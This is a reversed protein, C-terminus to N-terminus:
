FQTGTAFFSFEGLEKTWGRLHVSSKSQGEKHIKFSPHDFGLYYVLSVANSEDPDIPKGRIRVIWDGGQSGSDIKVFETTM